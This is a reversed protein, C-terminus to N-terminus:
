QARPLPADVEFRLKKHRQPPSEAVAETIRGADARPPAPAANRQESASKFIGTKEILEETVALAHEEAGRALVGAIRPYLGKSLVAKAPPKEDTPVMGMAKLAEELLHNFGVQHSPHETPAHKKANRFKCLVEWQFKSLGHAEKDTSEVDFEPPLHENGHFRSTPDAVICRGVNALPIRVTVPTNEHKRKGMSGSRTRMAQLQPSQYVLNNWKIGNKGATLTFELSPILDWRAAEEKTLPQPRHSPSSAGRLWRQEPTDWDLDKQKRRAYVEILWLHFLMIFDDITICAELLPKRAGRKQPNSGTSGKLWSVFDQELTGFFREVFPKTDPQHPVAMEFGIRVRALSLAMQESVFEKGNDYRIKRPKGYSLLSGRINPFRKDVYTKVKIAHDISALAPHLGGPDFSPHFGVPYGSYVDIGLCIWFRDIGAKSWARGFPTEGLVGMFDFQHHDFECIDLIRKPREFRGAGGFELDAAQAGNEKALRIWADYRRYQVQVTSLGVEPLEPLLAEKTLEGEDIRKKIEKNHLRIEANREVIKHNTRMKIKTPGFEASLEVLERITMGIISFVQKPLKAKRAKIANAHVFTREQMGHKLENAVWRLITRTVKKPKKIQKGQPLTSNEADIAKDVTEIIEQANDHNRFFPEGPPATLMKNIFAGVYRWIVAARARPGANITNYVKGILARTEDITKKEDVPPVKWQPSYYRGKEFLEILRTTALRVTDGTHHSLFLHPGAGELKKIFQHPKDDILIVQNPTLNDFLVWDISPLPAGDGYASIESEVQRDAEAPDLVNLM